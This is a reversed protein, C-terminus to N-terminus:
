SNKMAAKQENMHAAQDISSNNERWITGKQGNKMTEDGVLILGNPEASGQLATRQLEQTPCARSSVDMKEVRVVVDDQHQEVTKLRKEIREPIYNEM